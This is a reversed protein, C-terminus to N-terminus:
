NSKPVAIAIPASQTSDVAQNNGGPNKEPHLTFYEPKQSALWKNYDAESEVVIVGRMSFHGKGCMQDCSIEYVFNPNGTRVKM